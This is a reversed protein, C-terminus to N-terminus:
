VPQPRILAAENATFRHIPQHAFLADFARRRKAKAPPQGRISPDAMHEVFVIELIGFEEITQQGLGAFYGRLRRRCDIVHQQRHTPGFPWAHLIMAAAQHTVAGARGAPAHDVPDGSGVTCRARDRRLPRAQQHLTAHQAMDEVIPRKLVVQPQVSKDSTRQEVLAGAFRKSFGGHRPRSIRFGGCSNRFWRNRISWRLSARWRHCRATEHEIDGICSTQLRLAIALAHASLKMPLLFEERRIEGPHIARMGNVLAMDADKAHCDVIEV